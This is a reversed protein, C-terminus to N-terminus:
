KNSKSKPLMAKLDDLSKIDTASFGGARNIQKINRHQLASTKGKSDPNKFEPAVFIGVVDQTEFLKLVEEKTMPVCAIVDPIGKKNGKVVKCTWAGLSHLFDIGKKQVDAEKM